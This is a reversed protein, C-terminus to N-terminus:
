ILAIIPILGLKLESVCPFPLSVYEGRAIVMIPLLVAETVLTDFTAATTLTQGTLTKAINTVNGVGARLYTKRQKKKNIEKHGEGEEEGKQEKNGNKFYINVM